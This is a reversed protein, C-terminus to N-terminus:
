LTSNQRRNLVCDEWVIRISNKFNYIKFNKITDRVFNILMEFLTKELVWGKLVLKSIKNWHCIYFSDSNCIPIFIYLIFNKVLYNLQMKLFIFSFHFFNRFNWLRSDSYIKFDETKIFHFICNVFNCMYYNIVM